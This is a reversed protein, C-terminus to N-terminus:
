NALARELLSLAMKVSLLRIQGRGVEGFRQEFNRTLAGKKALGFCVYGIPKEPTGGTPGAVGTISVAIDADSYKLAGSAMANAVQQSVAGYTDIMAWPVGLSAQKARNSYTVFGRDFVLSSGPISTLISSVMGGTCSEATTLLINKAAAISILKEAQKLVEEDFM